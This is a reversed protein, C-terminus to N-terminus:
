VCEQYEATERIRRQEEPALKNWQQQADPTKEVWKKPAISFGLRKAPRGGASYLDRIQRQREAGLSHWYPETHAAPHASVWEQLFFFM